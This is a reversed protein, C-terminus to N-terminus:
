WPRNKKFDESTAVAPGKKEPGAESTTAAAVEKREQTNQKAAPKAVPNGKLIKFGAKYNWRGKSDILENELVVKLLEEANVKEGTPNLTKDAEIAAVETNMYDTAEKVADTQAKSSNQLDEKARTIARDEIQKLEADRDARYSDWQAQDGGFWAPIKTNQENEKRATGFETRISAIDDQHRKEQDNFRTTWEDERQKWRPHEHFPTDDKKTQANEGEASQTDDGQNDNEAQSAASTDEETSETAFAPDGEAQFAAANNDENM